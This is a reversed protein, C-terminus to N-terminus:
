TPNLVVLRRNETDAVWIRMQSDVAISWPTRFQGHGMGPTGFRGLLQGDLASRTLRGAGWEIVFLTNAGWAGLLAYEKGTSADVYGWVDSKPTAGGGPNIQGVHAIRLPEGPAEPETIPADCSTIVLLIGAHAARFSRYSM